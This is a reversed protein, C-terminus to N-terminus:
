VSDSNGWFNCWNGPDSLATSPKERLPRRILTFSRRTDVFGLRRLARQAPHGASVLAGVIEPRHELTGLVLEAALPALAAEHGPAAILDLLAYGDLGLLDMRRGVAFGVLAGAAERAEVIDYDFPNHPSGYLWDLTAQDKAFNLQEAARLRANLGDYDAAFSAVTEIRYSTARARAALRHAFSRALPSLPAALRAAAKGRPAAARLVAPADLPLAMVPAVAAESWGMRLEMDLVNSRITYGMAFDFGAGRAAEWGFEALRRYLRRGGFRPVTMAAAALAGRFDRGFGVVDRAIFSLYSAFAGDVYAALFLSGPRPNALLWAVYSRRKAVSDPGPFHTAHLALLQAEGARLDFPRLAITENMYAHTLRRKLRTGIDGGCHTEGQFRALGISVM